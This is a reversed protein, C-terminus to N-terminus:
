VIKLSKFPLHRSSTSHILTTEYVNRLSRVCLSSPKKNRSFKVYVNICSGHLKLRKQVPRDAYPCRIALCKILSYVNVGKIITNEFLRPLPWVNQTTEGTMRAVELYHLSPKRFWTAAYPYLLPCIPCHPALRSLPSSALTNHVNIKM